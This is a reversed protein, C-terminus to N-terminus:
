KKIETLDIENMVYDYGAKIIEAIKGKELVTFKKLEPPEIFLDCKGISNVITNRVILHMSRDVHHLLGSDQEFEPLPNVHIGILATKSGEFPEVPLNSSMGGDAYPIKDIIVPPFLVPIAASAILAEEIKGKNFIHQRGNILDTASIFLPIKLDEFTKSRLYKNITKSYSQFSLLSEKLRLLNFAIKPNTKILIEEIEDPQFGDCIFAGVLAGSSTGSIAKIKIGKKLLAKIAGIHAYGRVGGGSLVLNVNM